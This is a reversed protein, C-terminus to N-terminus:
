EDNGYGRISDHSADHAITRVGSGSAYNLIGSDIGWGLQPTPIGDITEWGQTLWDM